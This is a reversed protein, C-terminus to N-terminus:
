LGCGHAACLDPPFRALGVDLNPHIEIAGADIRHGRADAEEVMHQLLERPMGEDVKLHLRDAIQMDVLMVGGLIGANGHTFRDGLRQGVLAADRAVTLRVRRHILRQGADREVNGATGPQHPLHLDAHRAEALPVGLQDLVPELAERLAGADGQM